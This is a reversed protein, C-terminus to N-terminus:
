VQELIEAHPVPNAAVKLVEPKSGSSSENNTSSGCGSILLAAGLVATAAFAFLKNMCSRRYLLIRYDYRM